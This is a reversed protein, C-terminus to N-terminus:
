RTTSTISMLLRKGHDKAWDIRDEAIVRGVMLAGRVGNKGIAMVLMALIVASVLVSRKQLFLNPITLPSKPCRPALAYSVWTPSLSVERVLLLWLLGWISRFRIRKGVDGTGSASVSGGLEVSGDMGGTRSAGLAAVQVELDRLRTVVETVIQETSSTTSIATM